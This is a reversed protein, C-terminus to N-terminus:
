GENGQNYRALKERIGFFDALEEASAGSKTKQRAIGQIHRQVKKVDTPSKGLHRTQAPDKMLLDSCARVFDAQCPFQCRASGLSISWDDCHKKRSPQKVSALWVQPLREKLGIAELIDDNDASAGMKRLRSKIASFSHGKKQFKEALENYGFEVPDNEGPLQVRILNKRDQPNKIHSIIEAPTMPTQKLRIQDLRWRVTSKPIGLLEAAKGISVFQTLDGPDPVNYIKDVNALKGAKKKRFDRSRATGINEGSAKANKSLLTNRFDERPELELAEAFSWPHGTKYGMRTRVKGHFKRRETDDTIGHFLAVARIADGISTFSELKYDIFIECPKSNSPGGASSGGRMLNYGSPAMTKLREIWQAEGALMAGVSSYVELERIQFDENLRDGRTDQELHQRIAFGLSFRSLGRTKKRTSENFHANLRDSLTRQTVGVYLKEELNGVQHTIVYVTHAM